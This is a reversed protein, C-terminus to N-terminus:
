RRIRPCKTVQWKKESVVEFCDSTCKRLSLSLRMKEKPPINEKEEKQEM